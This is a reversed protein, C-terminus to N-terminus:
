EKDWNYTPFKFRKNRESEDSKKLVPVLELNENPIYYLIGDIKLGQESYGHHQIKATKGLLHKYDEKIGNNVVLKGFFDKGYDPNIVIKVESGVFCQSQQLM